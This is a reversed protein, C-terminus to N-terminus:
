KRDDPGPKAGVDLDACRRARMADPDDASLRATLWLSLWCVSGVVLAALQCNKLAISTAAILSANSRVRAVPVPIRLVWYPM